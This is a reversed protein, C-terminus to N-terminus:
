EWAFKGNEMIMEGDLHMTGAKMDKILDMHIASENGKKGEGVSWPIAYGLALHITDGMKEDFLMNRTFRDIQRNTGIGLEGLRRAGDDTALLHKLMDENREASFDVVEGGSFELKIGEVERGRLLMPMDFLIKGETSEPNPAVYVEGSPMNHKGASNVPKMGGINLTLDTDPGMIHVESTKQLREVLNEQMEYVENWDRIIAGWVFDQYSSLSMGAMQASANTPFQTISMKKNIIVENLPKLARAMESLRDGPAEGLATLNDDGGITIIVDSNEFLALVHKPTKMAGERNMLYSRSAENSALLTVPDAGRKGIEEYLAIVLDQAAPPARILVTEDKQIDTSWEVLIKAHKKIREDM